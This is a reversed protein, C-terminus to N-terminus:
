AVYWVNDCWFIYILLFPLAMNNLVENHFNRWETITDDGYLFPFPLHFLIAFISLTSM